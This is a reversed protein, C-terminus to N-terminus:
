KMIRVKPPSFLLNLKVYWNLTEPPITGLHDKSKTWSRWSANELRRSESTSERKEIIHRWSRWLDEEKWDHSLYDILATPEERMSTDDRTTFLHDATNSYSPTEPSTSRAPTTVADFEMSEQGFPPELNDADELYECSDYSPFRVDEEESSSTQDLSSSSSKNSIHFPQNQSELSALHTSLSAPSRFYTPTRAYNEIIALKSNANVSSRYYLTPIQPMNLTQSSSCCLSNTGAPSIGERKAPLVLTDEM